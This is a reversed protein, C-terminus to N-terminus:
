SLVAALPRASRTVSLSERSGDIRIGRMPTVEIKLLGSNGAEDTIAAGGSLAISRGLRLGSKGRLGDGAQVVYRFTLEQSGSGGVYTAHRAGKLGTLAIHPTGGVIVAESFSVVFDLAQGITATGGDPVGVRGLTRPPRTDIVVGPFRTAAQPLSAPLREGDGNALIAAGRPLVLATGLAVSTANDRPRVRHVFVLRDSGGGSEYEATRSLGDLSVQVKPKGVVRVPESLVFVTRLLAGTRYLGPPPPEVAVIEFPKEHLIRVELAILSSADGSDSKGAVSLRAEAQREMVIESGITATFTATQRTTEPGVPAFVFTEGAVVVTVRASAGARASGEASVEITVEDGPQEETEPLIAVRKSGVASAVGGASRSVVDARSSAEITVGAGVYDRIERAADPNDQLSDARTEGWIGYGLGGFKFRADPELSITRELTWSEEADALTARLSASGSGEDTLVAFTALMLRRELRELPLLTCRSFNRAGRGAHRAVHRM